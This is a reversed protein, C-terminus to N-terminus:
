RKRKLSDAPYKAAMESRISRAWNTLALKEADTLDADSHILTYSSLPMEEKEVLEIMEDLKHYQKALRYSAFDNFNLERKGERIHDHLWWAVPQINAYWPYRTNNTHCDNCAKQLITNVTDDVPYIRSIDNPAVATSINREPHFFQIVVLVVLLLLGIAKLIKM